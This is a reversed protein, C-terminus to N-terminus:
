RTQLLSEIMATVQRLEEASLNTLLEVAHMQALTLRVVCPRSVDADTRGTKEVADVM